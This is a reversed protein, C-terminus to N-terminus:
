KCMDCYESNLQKAFASQMKQRYIDNFASTVSRIVYWSVKIDNCGKQESCRNRHKM